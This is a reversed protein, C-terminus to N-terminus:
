TEFRALKRAKTLTQHIQKWHSGTWYIKGCNINECRWFQDYLQLSTSPVLGSVEERSAHNLISGCEPCLTRETDITLALGLSQSVQALREDESEGSVLLAAINKSVARKYLEEDRTLLIMQEKAAQTLLMKDTSNRDYLTFHGLIRLWRALGGLMGDVIFRM